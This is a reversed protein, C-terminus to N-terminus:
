REWIAEQNLGPGSPGPALHTLDVMLGLHSNPAKETTVKRVMNLSTGIGSLSM